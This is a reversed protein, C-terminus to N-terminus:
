ADPTPTVPPPRQATAGSIEDMLRWVMAADMPTTPDNVLRDALVLKSALDRDTM